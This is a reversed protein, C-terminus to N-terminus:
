RAAESAVLAHGLTGSMGFSSVGAIRQGSWPTAQAEFRLTDEEPDVDELRIFSAKLPVGLFPTLAVTAAIGAGTVGMALYRKNKEVKKTRKMLSGM